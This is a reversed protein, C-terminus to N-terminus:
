SKADLVKGGAKEIKKKASASVAIGEVTVARAIEGEGLIKAQDTVHKLVGHARLVARTITAEEIRVLDRLNVAIVKRYDNKKHRIGRLKPLKAIIDREAPRIRHGARKRQGKEGKGSYTGRKGGRGVRKERKAPRSTKLDHIQM